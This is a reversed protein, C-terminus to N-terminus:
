ATRERTTDQSTRPRTEQEDTATEVQGAPLWNVPPLSAVILAYRERIPLGPSRNVVGEGDWIAATEPFPMPEPM